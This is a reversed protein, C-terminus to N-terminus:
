HGKMELHLQCDLADQNEIVALCATPHLEKHQRTFHKQGCRRRTGNPNEIMKRCRPDKNNPGVCVDMADSDM